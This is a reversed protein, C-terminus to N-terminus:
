EYYSIFEKYNFQFNFFVTHTQARNKNHNDETYKTFHTTIGKPTIPQFIAPM